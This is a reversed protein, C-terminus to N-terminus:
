LFFSLMVGNRKRIFDLILPPCSYILSDQFHNPVLISSILCGFLLFGSEQITERFSLILGQHPRFYNMELLKRHELDVLSQRSSDLLHTTPSGVQKSEASKLFVMSVGHLQHNFSGWGTSSVATITNSTRGHELVTAWVATVSLDLM